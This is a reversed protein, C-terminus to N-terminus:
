GNQMMIRGDMALLKIAPSSNNMLLFSMPIQEHRADKPQMSETDRWLLLESLTTLSIMSARGTMSSLRMTLRM